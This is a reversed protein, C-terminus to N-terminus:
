SLGGPNQSNIKGSEAARFGQFRNRPIFPKIHEILAFEREQILVGFSFLAPEIFEDIPL